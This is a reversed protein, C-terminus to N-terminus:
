RGYPLTQEDGEDAATQVELRGVADCVSQARHFGSRFLCDDVLRVPDGAYSELRRRVCNSRSDRFAVNCGVGLRSHPAGAGLAKTDVGHHCRSHVVGSRNEGAGGESDYAGIVQDGDGDSRPILAIVCGQRAREQEAGIRMDFLRNLRCPVSLTRRDLVHDDAGLTPNARLGESVNQLSGAGAGVQGVHRDM